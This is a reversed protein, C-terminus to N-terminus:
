KAEMINVLGIKSNMMNNIITDSDFKELYHIFGHLQQLLLIIAM